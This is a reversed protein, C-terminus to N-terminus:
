VEVSSRPLASPISFGFTSGQGPSSRVWVKGGHLQVLRKVLALGLGTGEQKPAAPNGVQRFEEFILEHHEPAIGIGTDEVEVRVGDAANAARVTVKGGADTFKVANALLNILVQKLKREDAEIEDLAPDVESALAVGRRAAREHILVLANAIATPLHVRSVNLELKGAEIKSLDLIDNILALLHQGSAHIDGLYEAQKPNMEGFLKALLAESFGIIANLPTRLEHSMNALFASKHQNALLADDRAAALAVQSAELQATREHVKRELSRESESLAANAAELHNLAETLTIRAHWLWYAATALLAATGVVLVVNRLTDPIEVRWDPVGFALSLGVACVVLIGAVTLTVLARNTVYPIAHVIALLALMATFPFYAPGGLGVFLAIALMGGAQVAIAARLDGRGALRYSFAAGVANAAVILSCVLVLPQRVYLWLAFLGTAFAVGPPAALRIYQQLRAQLPNEASRTAV